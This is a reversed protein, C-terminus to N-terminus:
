SRPSLQGHGSQAAETASAADQELPIVNESCPVPVHQAGAGGDGGGEGDAGGGTGGEGGAGGVYGAGNAGHGSLGAHALLWASSVFHATFM